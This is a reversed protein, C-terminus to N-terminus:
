RHRCGPPRDKNQRSARALGSRPVLFSCVAPGTVTRRCWSWPSESYGAGPRVWSRFSVPLAEVQEGSVGAALRLSQDRETRAPSEPAASVADFHGIWIAICVQPQVGVSRRAVSELLGTGTLTRSRSACPLRQEALPQPLPDPQDATLPVVEVPEFDVTKVVRRFPARQQRTPRQSTSTSNM